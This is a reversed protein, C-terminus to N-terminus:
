EHVHGRARGVPRHEPVPDRGLTRGRRADARRHGVPHRGWLTGRRRLRWTPGPGPSLPYSAITAPLVSGLSGVPLVSGISGLSRVSGLSAVLADAATSRGMVSAAPVRRAAATLVPSVTAAGAGHTSTVLLTIATVLTTALRGFPGFGTGVPRARRRAVAAAEAIVSWTLQLWALWLVCAVVKVITRDSVGVRTLADLVAQSSPMVSPLPWRVLLVLGIPVGLVLVVVVLLALV